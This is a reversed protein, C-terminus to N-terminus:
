QNEGQTKASNYNNIAMEIGQAIGTSGQQAIQDAVASALFSRWQDEANGGGFNGIDVTKIMENVMQSLFMSEFKKASEQAQTPAHRKPQTIDGSVSRALGGLIDM